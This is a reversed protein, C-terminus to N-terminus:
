PPRHRTEAACSPRPRRASASPASSPRNCRTSPTPPKANPNSTAPSPSTSSAARPSTPRSSSRPSNSRSAPHNALLPLPKVPPITMSWAISSSYLSVLRKDQTLLVAVGADVKGVTLSVLMTGTLINNLVHKHNLNRPLQLQPRRLRPEPHSQSHAYCEWNPLNPM